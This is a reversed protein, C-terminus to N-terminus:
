WFASFNVAESAFSFYCGTASVDAPIDSGRDPLSVLALGVKVFAIAEPATIRM